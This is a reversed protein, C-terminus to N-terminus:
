PTGVACVRRGSWNVGRNVSGGQGATVSYDSLQWRKDVGQHAAEVVVM